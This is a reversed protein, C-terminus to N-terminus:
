YERLCSNICDIKESQMQQSTIHPMGAISPSRDGISPSQYGGGTQGKLTLALNLVRFITHRRYSPDKQQINASCQIPFVSVLLIYITISFLINILISIRNREDCFYRIRFSYYESPFKFTASENLKNLLSRLFCVVESFFLCNGTALFFM